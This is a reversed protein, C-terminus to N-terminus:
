RSTGSVGWGGMELSREICGGQIPGPLSAHSGRAGGIHGNPLWTVQSPNPGDGIYSPRPTIFVCLHSRLHDKMLEHGVIHSLERDLM